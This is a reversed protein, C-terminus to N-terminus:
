ASPRIPLTSSPTSSATGCTCACKVAASSAGTTTSPTQNPSWWMFRRMRPASSPFHRPAFIIKVLRKCPGFRKALPASRGRPPHLDVGDPKATTASNTSACRQPRQEALLPLELRRPRVM